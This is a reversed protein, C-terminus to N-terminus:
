KSSVNDCECGCVDTRFMKTWSVFKIEELLNDRVRDFVPVV